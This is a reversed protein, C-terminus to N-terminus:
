VGHSRPPPPDFGPPTATLLFSVPVRTRRASRDPAPSGFPEVLGATAGCTLGDHCHGSHGQADHPAADAVGQAPPHIAASDDTYANISDPLFLLGAVLIALGFVARLIAM